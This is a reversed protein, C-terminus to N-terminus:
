RGTGGTSIALPNTGPSYIGTDPDDTFAFTPASNSGAAATLPQVLNDILQATTQSM